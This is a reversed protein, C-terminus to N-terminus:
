SDNGIRPLSLQETGLGVTDDKITAALGTFGRHGRDQCQVLRKAPGAGQDQYEGRGLALGLLEKALHCREVAVEAVDDRHIAIPLEAHIECAARPYLSQRARLFRDPAKAPHIQQDDILGGAHGVLEVVGGAGHQRDGAPAEHHERRRKALAAHEVLLPSAFSTPRPLAVGRGGRVARPDRGGKELLLALRQPRPPEGLLVLAAEHVRYILDKLRIHDVPRYGLPYRWEESAGSM